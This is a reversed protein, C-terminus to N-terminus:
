QTTDALFPVHNLTYLLGAEGSVVNVVSTKAICTWREKRERRGPLCHPCRGMHM